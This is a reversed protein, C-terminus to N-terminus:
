VLAPYKEANPGGLLRLYERTLISRWRSAVAVDCAVNLLRCRDIALRLDRLFAVCAPCADIHLRMQERRRPEARGDIYESLNSFLERCESARQVSKAQTLRTRKKVPEGRGPDAKDPKDPAGELM